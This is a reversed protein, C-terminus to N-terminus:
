SRGTASGRDLFVTGRQGAPAAAARTRGRGATDSSLVTELWGLHRTQLWALSTSTSDMAAELQGRIALNHGWQPGLLRGVGEKLMWWPHGEPRDRHRYGIRVSWGSSVGNFVSLSSMSM